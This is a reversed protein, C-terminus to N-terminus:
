QIRLDDLLQRQSDHEISRFLLFCCDHTLDRNYVNTLWSNHLLTYYTKKLMDPGSTLNSWYYTTQLQLLLGSALFHTYCLMERINSKMRVGGVKGNEWRIWSIIYRNRPASALWLIGRDNSSCASLTEVPWAWAPIFWINWWCQLSRRSYKCSTWTSRYCAQTWCEWFHKM